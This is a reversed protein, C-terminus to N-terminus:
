SRITKRLVYSKNRWVAYSLSYLGPPYALFTSIFSQESRAKFPSFSDLIWSMHLM